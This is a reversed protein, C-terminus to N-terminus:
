GEYLVLAIYELPEDGICTIAHGEGPATFTLDGPGVEVLTGNDNYEGRGKLIYYLEGDGSHVHWGFGNGPQLFVHNFLRGKGLLDQPGQILVHNETVGPGNFMPKVAVPIESKRRVFSM